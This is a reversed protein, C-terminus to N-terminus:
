HNIKYKGHLKEPPLMETLMLLLADTGEVAQGDPLLYAKEPLVYLYICGRVRYVGHISKWEYRLPEDGDGHNTVEIGDPADTFHLSYVTKPNKLDLLKTQAYIARFIKSIRFAPLGLGVFLLTAGLILGMGGMILCIIASVSMITAFILPSLYARRRHFSEFMSFKNFIMDDIIVNVTVSDNSM